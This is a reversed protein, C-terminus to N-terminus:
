IRRVRELMWGGGGKQYGGRKTETGILRNKNQPIMHYKDKEAQTIESLMIGDLYM